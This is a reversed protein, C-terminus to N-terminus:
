LSATLCSAALLIHCLYYTPLIFKGAKKNHAFDAEAIMTDSFVICAIGLIYLIRQAATPENACLACFLGALSALAYGPLAIKMAGPQGPLVRKTLYLAYCIALLAIFVLALPRFKFAWLAYAMFILHAAGFLAVGAIFRMPKGKQHALLYDGAVSVLLGAALSFARASGGGILVIFACSLSVFASFVYKGTKLRLIAMALPLLLWAYNM